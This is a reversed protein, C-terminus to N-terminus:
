RRVELIPLKLGALRVNTNEGRWTVTITHTGAAVRMRGFLSFTDATKAGGGANLVVGDCNLRCEWDRDGSPFGQTGSLLPIIECEYPANITYTLATQFANNGYLIATREAYHVVTVSNLAIKNTGITLDVINASSINATGILANKVRLEGNVYEMLDNASGTGPNRFAIAGAQFVIKSTGGGAAVVMGAVDTGGSVSLTYKGEVVGVRNSIATASTQVSALTSNTGNLNAQVTQIASANAADNSARANIETTIRSHADEARASVQNITNSLVGDQAARTNAESVIAANLTTNLNSIAQSRSSTEAAIASARATAEASIGANADAVDAQLESIQSAVANLATTRANTETVIAAANNDAKTGVISIQNANANDATTRLNAENAIAAQNANTSTTLNDIAEAYSEGDSLVDSRLSEVKAFAEDRYAQAAKDNATIATVGIQAMEEVQSVFPYLDTGTYSAVQDSLDSVQDAISQNSDTVATLAEDLAPSVDEKDHVAWCRDYGVTVEYVPDANKLQKISGPRVLPTTSRDATLPLPNGMTYCDVGFFVGFSDCLLAGGAQALADRLLDGANVQGTVYTNWTMGAFASFDGIKNAPVGCQLLLHSVIEDLTLPTVSGNKAGRVDASIKYRPAGGLRFLGQPLCVAWESPQLSLAILEAYTAVSAKMKAPDLAEAREYVAPIDQIPGYGHVQYVWYTQDVLEPDVSLAYGSCWPKLSGEEDLTKEAGGTGAYKETLFDTDLVAEPGILDLSATFGERGLASVRGTFYRTYDTFPKGHEGIWITAEANNWLYTSWEENEFVEGLRFEITGRRTSSATLNGEEDMFDAGHSPRKSILPPWFKGDLLTGEPGAAKHAMRVTTTTGSRTKPTAELLINMTM